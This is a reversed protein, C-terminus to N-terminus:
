RIRGILGDMARTGGIGDCIATNCSGARKGCIGLKTEGCTWFHAVAINRCRHSTHKHPCAGTGRIPWPSSRCTNQYCSFSDVNISQTRHSESNFLQFLRFFRAFCITKACRITLLLFHHREVQKAAPSSWIQGLKGNTSTSCQHDAASVHQAPVPVNRRRM